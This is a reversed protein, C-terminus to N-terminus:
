QSTINYDDSNYLCQNVEDINNRLQENDFFDNIVHTRQYLRGMFCLRQFRQIMLLM